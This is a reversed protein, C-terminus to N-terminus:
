RRERLSGTGAKCFSLREIVVCDMNYQFDTSIIYIWQNDFLFQFTSLKAIQYRRGQDVGDNLDITDIRVGSRAHRTARM